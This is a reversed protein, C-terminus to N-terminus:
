GSPLGNRGDEGDTSMGTDGEVLRGPGTEQHILEALMRALHDLKASGREAVESWPGLRGEPSIRAGLRLRSPPAGQPGDLRLGFEGSPTYVDQSSLFSRHRDPDTSPLKRHVRETLRDDCGFEGCARPRM